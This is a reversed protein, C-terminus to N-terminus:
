EEEGEGAKARPKGRKVPQERGVFAAACEPCRGDSFGEGALSHKGCDVCEDRPM